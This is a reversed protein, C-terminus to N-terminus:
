ISQSTPNGGDQQLTGLQGDIDKATNRILTKIDEQQFSLKEQKLLPITGAAIPKAASTGTDSQHYGTFHTISCFDPKHPDLAAPGQSSYGVIQEEINVAGITIVM